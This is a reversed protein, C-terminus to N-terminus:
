LYYDILYEQLRKDFNAKAIEAKEQQGKVLDSPYTFTFIINKNVDESFWLEPKYPHGVIPQVVFRRTEGQLAAYVEASQPPKQDELNVIESFIKFVDNIINQTFDILIM